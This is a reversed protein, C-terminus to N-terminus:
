SVSTCDTKAAMASHATGPLGYVAATSPLYHDHVSALVSVFVQEEDNRIIGEELDALLGLTDKDVFM